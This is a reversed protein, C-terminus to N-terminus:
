THQYNPASFTEGAYALNVKGIDFTSLGCGRLHPDFRLQMGVDKLDLVMDFDYPAKDDFLFNTEYKLSQTIGVAVFRVLQYRWTSHVSRGVPYFGYNLGIFVLYLRPVVAGPPLINANQKQPGILSEIDQVPISLYGRLSQFSGYSLNM